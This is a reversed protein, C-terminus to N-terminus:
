PKFVALGVIALALAGGALGLRLQRRALAPVQAASRRGSAHLAAVLMRLAPRQGGFLLVLGALVLVVKVVLWAPPAGPWDQVAVLGIGTAVTLLVAPAIVRDLLWVTTEAVFIMLSPQGSRRARAGWLGFLAGGGVWVIVGLLHLYLLTERM